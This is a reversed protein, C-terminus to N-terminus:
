LGARLSVEYHTQNTRNSTTIFQRREQQRERHPQRQTKHYRTLIILIIHGHPQTIQDHTNATVVNQLARKATATTTVVGANV